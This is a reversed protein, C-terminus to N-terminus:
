QQGDHSSDSSGDSSGDGFGKMAGFPALMLIYAIKIERCRQHLGNQSVFGPGDPTYVGPIRLNRQPMIDLMQLASNRSGQPQSQCNLNLIM